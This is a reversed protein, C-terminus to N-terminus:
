IKSDLIIKSVKQIAKGKQKEKTTQNHMVYYNKNLSVGLDHIENIRKIKIKQLLHIAGQNGCAIILTLLMKSSEVKLSSVDEHTWRCTLVYWDWPFAYPVM